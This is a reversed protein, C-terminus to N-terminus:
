ETSAAAILAEAAEATAVNGAVLQVDLGRSAGRWRSCGRSHGHATDLVLVDAGAAALAEARELADSGV